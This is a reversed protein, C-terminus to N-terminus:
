RSEDIADAIERLESRLGHLRELRAIHERNAQAFAGDGQPYYDRANPACDSVANQAVCLATLATSLAELLSQKSTGNLHITPTKM